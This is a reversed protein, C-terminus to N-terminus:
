LGNNQLTTKNRISPFHFIELVVQKWFILHLVIHTPLFLIYPVVSFSQVETKTQSLMWGKPHKSHIEQTQLILCFIQTERRLHLANKHGKIHYWDKPCLKKKIHKYLVYSFPVLGQNPGRPVIIIYMIFLVVLVAKSANLKPHSGSSICEGETNLSVSSHENNLLANNLNCRYLGKCWM